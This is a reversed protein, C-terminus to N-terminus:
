IIKKEELSLLQTFYFLMSIKGFICMMVLAERSPGLMTVPEMIGPEEVEGKEGRKVEERKPKQGWYIEREKYKNCHETRPNGIVTLGRALPWLTHV